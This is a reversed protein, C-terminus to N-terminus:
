AGHAICTIADWARRADRNSGLRPTSAVPVRYEGVRGGARPITNRGSEIEEDTETKEALVKNGDVLKSGQIKIVALQGAGSM